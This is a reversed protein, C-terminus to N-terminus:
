ICVDIMEPSDTYFPCTASMPVLVGKGRHCANTLQALREFTAKGWSLWHKQCHTTSLTSYRLVLESGANVKCLEQEVRRAQLLKAVVVFLEEELVQLINCLKLRFQFVRITLQGVIYISPGVAGHPGDAPLICYM